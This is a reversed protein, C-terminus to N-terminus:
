ISLGKDYVGLVKSRVEFKRGESTTPLPKYFTIHREGDVVRKVDLKPIGPIDGSGGGRAGYFDVVEQSTKKFPLIIPYTPFM